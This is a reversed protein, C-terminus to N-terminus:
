IAKFPHDHPSVLTYQYLLIKRNVMNIEKTIASHLPGKPTNGLEIELMHIYHNDICMLATKASVNAFGYARTATYYELTKRQLFAIYRYRELDKLAEEATRFDDRISRKVMGLRLGSIIERMGHIEYEIFDLMQGKFDVM